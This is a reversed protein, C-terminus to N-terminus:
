RISEMTLIKELKESFSEDATVLYVKRQFGHDKKFKGVEVIRGGVAPTISLTMKGDWENEIHFCSDADDGVKNSESLLKLLLSKLM